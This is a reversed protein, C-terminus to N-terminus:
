AGLASAMAQAGATVSAHLHAFLSSSARAMRNAVDGGLSRTGWCYIKWCTSAWRGRRQIEHEAFGADAMATCGGARLSHTDLIDPDLGLRLGSERLLRTVTGKEVLRGDNLIFLYDPDCAPSLWDPNLVRLKDVTTPICLRADEKCCGINDDSGQGLFDVKDFEHRLSFEDSAVGVACNTRQGKVLAHADRQRVCKQVDVFTSKRLYESCRLLFFFAVLIALYVLLGNYTELRLGGNDHIDLIQEVTVPIKREDPGCLRKLGKSLLALYPMAHQRIDLGIRHEHHAYRMSYLRTHMYHWSYGMTRGGHAFFDCIEDEWDKDRLEDLLILQGRARRWLAWAGFATGYTRKTGDSTAHALLQSRSRSIDASRASGRVVRPKKRTGAHGVSGQSAEAVDGVDEGCWQAAIVPGLIDYCIIDLDRAAAGGRAHIRLLLALRAALGRWCRQIRAAAFGRGLRPGKGRSDFCAGSSGCARATVASTALTARMDSYRARAGWGRAMRQVVLLARLAREILALRMTTRDAVAEAYGKAIADGAAGALVEYSAVPNVRVFRDFHADAALGGQLRWLERATVMRVGLEPDHVLFHAPGEFPEGFRNITTGISNVHLVRRRERVHNAGAQALNVRKLYRPALRDNFLLEAVGDCLYMVRWSGTIGPLWVLSGRVFPDTSAGYEHYGAILIGNADPHAGHLPSFRGPVLHSPSIDRSPELINALRGRPRDPVHIFPCPGILGEAWSAEYHFNPRRRLADMGLEAAELVEIELPACVVRPTRIWDPSLDDDLTILAAGGDLTAVQDVNEVDICWVEDSGGFARAVKGVGITMPDSRRDALGRRRGSLSAFVCPPGGGIARVRHRLSWSLYADSLMDACWRVGRGRHEDHLFRQKFADMEMWFGTQLGRAAFSRELVGTGTCLGGFSYGALLDRVENASLKPPPTDRSPRLPHADVSSAFVDDPLAFTNMVSEGRTFFRLLSDLPEYVLGPWHVDLLERQLTDLADPADLDLDRGIYDLFWNTKTNVYFAVVKFKYQFELRSLVLLLYRVYRNRSRRTTLAIRAGENDIMAAVHYGTWAPAHQAALAIVALLETVLIILDDDPTETGTQSCLRILDPAYELARAVTWTGATYDVASMVGGTELGNADSGIYRVPVHLGAPLRTVDYFELADVLSAKFLDPQETGMDILLRLLAKADDYEEWERESPPELFLSGQHASMAYLMPLLSRLAPSCTSWWQVNGVLAQHDKVRVRRAGSAAVPLRAWARMKAFKSDTLTVFAHHAGQTINSLDFHIGWVTRLAALVGSTLLKKVNLAKGLVRTLVWDYADCSLDARAGLDLEAIVGDDVYTLSFYALTPWDLIGPPGLARHGASIAHGHVCYNGPSESWGFQLVTFIAVIAFWKSARRVHKTLRKCPLRTGFWNIDSTAYHILKFAAKVDRMALYIPVGPAMLTLWVIYVILELHVPLPAPPHRGPPTKANVSADGGDKADYIFRGEAVDYRPPEVVFGEDDTKPVRGMPACQVDNLFELSDSSCLLVGGRQFDEWVRLLAEVEFEELSAHARVNTREHPPHADTRVTVGCAALHQMYILLDENILDSIEALRKPDVSRGHERWWVQAQAIRVRRYDGGAAVLMADTILVAESVLELFAHEAPALKLIAVEDIETAGLEVLRTAQAVENETLQTAMIDDFTLNRYLAAGPSDHTAGRSIPGVEREADRRAKSKGAHTDIVEPRLVVDDTSTPEESYCDFFDPEHGGAKAASTPAATTPAAPTPAATSPAASTTPAATTPAASTPAAEQRQFRVRRNSEAAAAAAAECAVSHGDGTACEYCCATDTTSGGLADTFCVTITSRRRCGVMTCIPTQSTSAFTNMVVVGEEDGFWDDGPTWM